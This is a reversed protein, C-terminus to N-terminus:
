ESSHGLFHQVANLQLPRVRNYAVKFSGKQYVHPLYPGGKFCTWVVLVLLCLCSGLAWLLVMWSAFGAEGTVRSLSIQVAVCICLELYFEYTFRINFNTVCAVCKRGPSRQQGISRQKKKLDLMLAILLLLLISAGILIVIALNLTVQHAYGCMKLLSMFSIADNSVETNMRAEQDLFAGEIGDIKLRIYQLYHLLFYSLNAPIYVQLTPIHVVLQMSNLFMWTPLLRGGFGILFVFPIFVILLTTDILSEMTEILQSDQASLQRYIRQRLQYGFEVEIGDELSQFFEVGYFTILIFDESFFLGM